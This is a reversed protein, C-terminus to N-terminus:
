AAKENDSELQTKTDRTDCKFGLGARECWDRRFAVDDQLQAAYLDTLNRAHGLWMKLSGRIPLRM